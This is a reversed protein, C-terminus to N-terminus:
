AGTRAQTQGRGDTLRQALEISQNGAKRLEVLEALLKRRVPGDVLLDVAVERSRIKEQIQEVTKVGKIESLDAERRAAIAM